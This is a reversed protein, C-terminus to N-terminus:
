KIVEGGLAQVSTMAGLDTVDQYGAKELIGVAQASRNGSRCYVYVPRDKQASPLAGTQIDQLSLNVAGKIHGQSFEETTRVDLLQGGNASDNEITKMNITSTDTATATSDNDKTFIAVGVLGLLLLGSVILIKM